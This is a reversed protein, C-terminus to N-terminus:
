WQVDGAALSLVDSSGLVQLAGNSYTEAVGTALQESNDEPNPDIPVADLGTATAFVNIHGAQSTATTMSVSSTGGVSVGSISCVIDTVQGAAPQVTCVGADEATVTVGNGVFSGTLQLNSAPQPGVPNAATFTWRLEDNVIAPEPAVAISLSVNARDLAAVTLQFADSIFAGAADTATVTLDYVSTPDADEFLPTGSFTGTQADFVINGSAPLGTAAYTLDEQDVDAFNVSVDLMFATSEVANQPGIPMALTPADNVPEVDIRLNAVASTLGSDDTVTAPVQLEGNFDPTPTITNGVRAYNAGDGLALTFVNSDPDDIILDAVVIEITSDEPTTLPNPETRRIRPVDDVATVTVTLDFVPSNSVGDNVRVPVALTGNFNEDPTITEGVRDYDDGDLVILSFDAPYDNDPDVVQLDNLTITLATDEDTVLAEQGTNIPATNNVSIQASAPSGPSAGTAARPTVEFTLTQGVDAQVVQYSTQTAGGIPSGGRLWRFTTGSEPDGQGDSYDYDGTLTEGIAPNGNISVNNAVPPTNTTVPGVPASVAEAGPSVGSTAVPTVGFRMNAGNDAAVLTYSTGTAGGIPAGNRFWRFTSAGENDGDADNYNYSGTLTQGVETTGSVTVNTATPATNAPVVPGAPASQAPAGVNQGAPDLISRPTVEFIILAGVDAATLTYLQTTAGAIPTGNRLWRFSTGVEPNGEPDSYTYSGTINFGVETTGSITVNSATPPLALATGCMLLVLLALVFISRRSRLALASAVTERRARNAVLSSKADM